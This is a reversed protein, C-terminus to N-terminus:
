FYVCTSETQANLTLYDTEPLRIFFFSTLASAELM